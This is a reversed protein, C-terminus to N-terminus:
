KNDSHTRTYVMMRVYYASLKDMKTIKQDNCHWFNGYEDAVTAWTNVRRDAETCGALRYEVGQISTTFPIAENSIGEGHFTFVINETVTKPSDTWVKFGETMNGDLNSPIM